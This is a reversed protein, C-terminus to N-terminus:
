SAKSSFDELQVDDWFINSSPDFAAIGGGLIEDDVGDYLRYFDLDAVDIEETAFRANFIVPFWGQDDLRTAVVSLHGDIGVMVIGPEHRDSAASMSVSLVYERKKEELDRPDIVYLYRFFQNNEINLNAGYHYPKGTVVPDSFVSIPLFLVPQNDLNLIEM